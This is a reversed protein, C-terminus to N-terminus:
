KEAGDAAKAAEIAKRNDAVIADHRAQIPLAKLHKHTECIRKDRHAHHPQNGHRHTIWSVTCGCPLGAQGGHLEDAGEFGFESHHRDEAHNIANRVTRHADLCRVLHDQEDSLPTKTRQSEALIRNRIWHLELHSKSFLHPHAGWREAWEATVRHHRGHVSRHRIHGSPLALAKVLDVPRIVLWIWLFRVVRWLAFGLDITEEHFYWGLWLAPLVLLLLFPNM